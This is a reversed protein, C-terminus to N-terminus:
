VREFFYLYGTGYEGHLGTALLETMAAGGDARASADDYVGHPTVTWYHGGGSCGSHVVVSAVRFRHVVGASDNIVVIGDAPMTIANSRKTRMGTLLDLKFRKVQIM